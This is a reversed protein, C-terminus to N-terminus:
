RQVYFPVLFQRFANPPAVFQDPSVANDCACSATDSGSWYMHADVNRNTHVDTRLHCFPVHEMEKSGRTRELDHAQNKQTINSSRLVEIVVNWLDLGFFDLGM